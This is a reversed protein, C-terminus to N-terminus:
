RILSSLVYSIALCVCGLLCYGLIKETRKKWNIAQVEHDVHRKVRQKKVRKRQANPRGPM